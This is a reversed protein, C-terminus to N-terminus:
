FFILRRFQMEKGIIKSWLGLLLCIVRKTNQANGSHWKILWQIAIGSVHYRALDCFVFIGICLNFLNPFCYFINSVNGVNSIPFMKTSYNKTQCQRPQSRHNSMVNPGLQYHRIATMGRGPDPSCLEADGGRRVFLGWYCWCQATLLSSAFSNGIM